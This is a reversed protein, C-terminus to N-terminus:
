MRQGGEAGHLSRTVKGDNITARNSTGADVSDDGIRPTPLIGELNGFVNLYLPYFWLFLYEWGYFEILCFTEDKGCTATSARTTDQRGIRV